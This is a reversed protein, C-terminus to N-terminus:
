CCSRNFRGSLENKAECKEMEMPTFGVSSYMCIVSYRTSSSRSAASRRGGGRPCLCRMRGAPESCEGCSAPPPRSRPGRSAGRGWRPTRLAGARRPRGAPPPRPAAGGHANLEARRPFRRDPRRRGAPCGRGRGRGRGRTAGGRGPRATGGGGNRM